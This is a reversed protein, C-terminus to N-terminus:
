ARPAINAEKKANQEEMKEHKIIFYVLIDLSQGRLRARLEPHFV